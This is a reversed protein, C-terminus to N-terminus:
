QQRPMPYFKVYGKPLPAFGEDGAAMVRKYCDPGVYVIQDDRTDVQYRKASQFKKGCIYCRDEKHQEVTILNEMGAKKTM